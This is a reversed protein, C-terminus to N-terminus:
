WRRMATGPFRLAVLGASSIAVASVVGPARTTASPTSHAAQRGQDLKCRSQIGRRHALRRIPFFFRRANRPSTVACCFSAGLRKIPPLWSPLCLAPGYRSAPSLTTSRLRTNPTPPSQCRLFFWARRRVREASREWLLNRDWRGDQFLKAVVLARLVGRERG